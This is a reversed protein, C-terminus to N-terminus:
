KKSNTKVFDEIAKAAAEMKIKVSVSDDQMKSKLLQREEILELINPTSFDTKEFNRFALIASKQFDSYLVHEKTLLNFQALQSISSKEVPQFPNVKLDIPPQVV